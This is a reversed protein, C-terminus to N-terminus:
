LVLIIRESAGHGRDRSGGTEGGYAATRSDACAPSASIRYPTGLEMSLGAQEEQGEQGEQGEQDVGERDCLHDPVVSSGRPWTPLHHRIRCFSSIAVVFSRKGRSLHHGASRSYSLRRGYGLDDSLVVTHCGRSHPFTMDM